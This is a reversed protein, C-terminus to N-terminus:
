APTSILMDSQPHMLGKLWLRLRDLFLYIVPTTYLTLMQSFLLGGVIAIGLPRRLEAGNGHGLALPLAGFMAALTTMMIPRFRLMCAEFIADVPAKGGRREADIAFDIMMIANKKVIGILLIIGILGVLDLEVKFVLLALLAGVGASPITSLITIPHVLSEYLMGLVLYVAVLAAAILFPQSSQSDQFVKATGQFSGHISTPMGIEAEAQHIEDSAQSLTVDPKLNFSLTIAPFQGQHNVALATTDNEFHSFASLPVQSGNAGPVYITKLGAATQWYKPQVEMVVHYQNLTTYMTSVQRQGFADYLVNDVASATVGLRAATVRDIVVNADPGGDQQDSNTDTLGPMTRFKELLRPAWEALEKLNDAQLTYQYTAASQRGGFRFDQFPNLITQAGPVHAFKVGLRTVVQRATSTRPPIPRLVAFMFGHNATGNGGAFQVVNVVDPDAAVIDGYQKMLRTMAQFSTQQDATIGGGVQGTDQDPFLGKPIVKYLYVTLGVTAITVVLVVGPHHLVASLTSEYVKLVSDFIRESFQYIRGHKQQEKSRLFLACMMPTTTLSVIMSVGIAVSLTISFERFLRGVLGGMMLIPIFVAILSTSM